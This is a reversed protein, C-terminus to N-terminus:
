APKILGVIWENIGDSFIEYHMMEVEAYNVLKKITNSNKGNALFLCPTGYKLGV